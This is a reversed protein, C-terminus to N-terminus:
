RKKGAPRPLFLGGAIYPDSKWNFHSNYWTVMEADRTVFRAAHRNPKREQGRRSCQQHIRLEVM